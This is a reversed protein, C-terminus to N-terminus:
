QALGSYAPRQLACARHKLIVKQDPRRMAKFECQSASLNELLKLSQEGSHLMENRRVRKSGVRSFLWKRMEPGSLTHM